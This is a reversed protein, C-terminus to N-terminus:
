ILESAPIIKFFYSSKKLEKTPESTTILVKHITKKTTQRIVEVKKEMEDIIATGQKECRYKMECITIVNDARDFLLDIQVGASKGKQEKRFYPGVLYEIGSFGLISAIKLHQEMCMLEFAKGLYSQFSIKQAIKKFIDRNGANIIKKNPLIFALYFKIFADTLRYKKLKSNINKDIPVYSKIFAASELNFLLESLMGGKSIECSCSIEDQALGCESQHLVEIIKKYNPNKGFHSTFIRDFELEFFGDKTFALKEIGQYLAGHEKVLLQYLPIGGLLMQTELLEKEGFTPLFKQTEALVFPNITVVQNIRGFLASSKIVKKIMFSAISGCLIIGINKKPVLYHDYFMKLVSVLESQYNAMWQFEDFVLTIKKKDNLVPLLQLLATHWDKIELNLYITGLPLQQSLQILFNKIQLGKSQNELGEFFFAKKGLLAQRITSTKGVRRRGYVAAIFPFHLSKLNALEEERGIFM